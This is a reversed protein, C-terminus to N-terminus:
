KELEARVNRINELLDGYVIVDNDDAQGYFNRKFKEVAEEKNNGASFGVTQRSAKRFQGAQNETIRYNKM